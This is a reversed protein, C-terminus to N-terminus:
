EMELNVFIIKSLGYVILAAVIAVPFILFGVSSFLVMIIGGTLISFTKTLDAVTNVALLLIFILIGLLILLGIILYSVAGIEEVYNSIMSTLSMFIIYLLMITFLAAIFSKPIKLYVGEEKKGIYNSITLKDLKLEVSDPHERVGLPLKNSFSTNALNRRLKQNITKRRFFIIGFLFLTFISTGVLTSFINYAFKTVYLIKFDKQTTELEIVKFKGESYIGNKEIFLFGNLDLIREANEIKIKVRQEEHEGSVYPTSFKSTFMGHGGPKQTMFLVHLQNNDYKSIFKISNANISAIDADTAYSVIENGNTTLEFRKGLDTAVLEGQGHWFRHVDGINGQLYEICVEEDAYVPTLFMLLFIVSLVGILLRKM